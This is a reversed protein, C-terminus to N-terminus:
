PNVKKKKVTTSKLCWSYKEAQLSSLIKQNSCSEFNFFIHFCFPSENSGLLLIFHSSLSILLLSNYHYYYYHIRRQQVTFCYILVTDESKKVNKKNKFTM